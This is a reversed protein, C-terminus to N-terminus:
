RGSRGSARSTLQQGSVPYVTGKEDIPLLYGDRGDDHSRLEPALNLLVLPQGPTTIEPSSPGGGLCYAAQGPMLDFNFGETRPDPGFWRIHLPVRAVNVFTYTYTRTCGTSCWALTVLLFGVSKRALYHLVSKVTAFDCFQMLNEPVDLLPNEERSNVLM